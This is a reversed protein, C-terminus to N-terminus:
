PAILFGGPFILGVIVAAIGASILWAVLLVVVVVAIWGYRGQGSKLM